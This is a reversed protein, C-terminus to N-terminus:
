HLDYLMEEMQKLSIEEICPWGLDRLFVVRVQDMAFKKKDHRIAVMLRDVRTRFETAYGLSRLDSLLGDLVGDSLGYRTSLKLIVAMGCAVAEGHSWTGRAELMELAHGVTHGFNLLRRVDKEREDERVVKEKLAVAREVLEAFATWERELVLQPDPRGAFMRVTRHYFAEDFLMFVKLMEALGSYFEREPLTRLFELDRVIKTPQTFTGVVNKYIGWNVGNKGGVSADVMALLTTPVFAFEVGRKFVSAVFGCLDTVMGGGVGILFADRDAGIEVLDAIIGGATDWSKRNEEASIRICPNDSFVEPYLRYIQADVLFIPRREHPIITSFDLM